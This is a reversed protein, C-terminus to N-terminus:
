APWADRDRYGAALARMETQFDVDSTSEAWIAAEEAAQVDRYLRDIAVEVIADQSRAVGYRDVLERVRHVTTAPLNYTRKTRVDAM